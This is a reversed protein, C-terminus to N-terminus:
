PCVLTNSANGPVTHAISRVREDGYVRIANVRNRMIEKTVEEIERVGAAKQLIHNYVFRPAGLCRKVLVRAKESGRIAVDMGYFATPQAIVKLIRVGALRSWSREIGSM